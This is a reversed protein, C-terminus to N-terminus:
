MAPSLGPFQPKRPAAAKAVCRATPADGLPLAATKPVAMGLNSDQRGLWIGKKAATATAGAEIFASATTTGAPLDSTQRLTAVVKGDKWTCNSLLVNPLRRKERPERLAFLRQANRALDLLGVGQDHLVQPRGTRRDDGLGQPQSLSGTRRRPWCRATLRSVGQAAGTAGPHLLRGEEEQEESSVRAYIVAQKRAPDAAPASKPANRM